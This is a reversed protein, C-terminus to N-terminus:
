IAHLRFRVLVDQGAAMDLTFVIRYNRGAAAFAQDSSVDLVHRFNYGIQDIYNGAADKWMEGSQLSDFITDAVVCAEDEHGDVATGSDPDSDDLLYVTYAIASVDAQQIVSGDAGVVRAVLTASGDKFVTGLIDQAAAM